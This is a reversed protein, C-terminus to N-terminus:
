LHSLEGDKRFLLSMRPQDSGWKTYALGVPAVTRSFDAAGKDKM